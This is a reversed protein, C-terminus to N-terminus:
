RRWGGGSGRAIREWDTQCPAAIGALLFGALAGDDLPKPRRGRVGTVGTRIRNPSGFKIRDAVANIEVGGLSLVTRM